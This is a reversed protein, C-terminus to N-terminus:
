FNFILGLRIQRPSSYNYPSNVRISYLDRFAQEDLQAQINTQYEAAALYGDDDPNGTAGYVSMINKSDLINLVQLYINLYSQRKGEGWSLNIDKDVRGDIRFQWPL